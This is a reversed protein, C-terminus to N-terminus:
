SRVICFSKRKRDIEEGDVDDAGEKWQNVRIQWEQTGQANHQHCSDCEKEAVKGSTSIILVVANVM